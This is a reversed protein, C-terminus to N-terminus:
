RKPKREYTFGSHPNIIVHSNTNFIFRNENRWFHAKFICTDNQTHKKTKNKQPHPM